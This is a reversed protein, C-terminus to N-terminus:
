DLGWIEFRADKEASSCHTLFDNEERLHYFPISGPFEEEFEAVQTHSNSAGAWKELKASMFPGVEIAISTFGRPVAFDCIASTFEPTQATGHQEGILVFQSESIAKRLVESGTGSMHGDKLTIEYRNELVRRELENQGSVCLLGCLALFLIAIIM